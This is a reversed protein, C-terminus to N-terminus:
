QEVTGVALDVVQKAKKMSDEVSDGRNQFIKEIKRIARQRRWTGREHAALVIYEAIERDVSIGFRERIKIQWVPVLVSPLERLNSNNRREEILRNLNKASPKSTDSM